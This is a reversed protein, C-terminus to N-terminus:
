ICTFLDRRVRSHTKDCVYAVHMHAVHSMRMHSMVWEHTHYPESVHTVHSVKMHSMVIECTLCSEGPHTVHSVWTHSMVCERTHCSENMHTVHSVWIHSMVWEYTHCSESVHTVHCVWSHSVVWECTHGSECMRTARSVWMHSMVWEGAPNHKTTLVRIESDPSPGGLISRSDGIGAVLLAGGKHLAVTATSGSVFLMDAGLAQAINSTWIHSTVGEFTYSSENMHTLHKRRIHSM